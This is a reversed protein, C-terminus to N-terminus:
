RGTPNAGRTAAHLMRRGVEAEVKSTPWDPYQSRVQTEVLDCALDHAQLAQELRQWPKMRRLSKVVEPHLPEDTAQFVAEDDPM